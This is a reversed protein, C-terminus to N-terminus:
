YEVCIYVDKATSDDNYVSVRRSAVEFVCDAGQPLIYDNVNANSTAHFRVHIKASAPAIVHVKSPRIEGFDAEEAAGNSPSLHYSVTQSANAM